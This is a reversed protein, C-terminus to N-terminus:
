PIELAIRIYQNTLIHFLLLFLSSNFYPNLALIMAQSGMSSGGIGIILIVDSINRLEKALTIMKKLEQNDVYRNM